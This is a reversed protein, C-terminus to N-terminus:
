GRIEWGEEDKETCYEMYDAWHDVVSSITEASYRIAQVGKEASCGARPPIHQTDDNYYHGFWAGTKQIGEICKPRPAWAVDEKIGSLDLLHEKGLLKLAGLLLSAEVYAGDEDGFAKQIADTRICPAYLLVPISTEGFFDRTVMQAATYPAHWQVIMVREFGTEILAVCAARIYEAMTTLPISISGTFPKTAGSYTMAVPPAIVAGTKEAVSLALSQAVYTDCGLLLHPGHVEISGVPLIAIDCERRRAEAERWTMEELFFRKM